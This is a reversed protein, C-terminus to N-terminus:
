SAKRFLNENQLSEMPKLINKLQQVHVDKEFFNFPSKYLVAMLTLGKPCATKAAKQRDKEALVQLITEPPLPKKANGIVMLQGVLNRVMKYLFRDAAIDFIIFDGDRYVDAHQIDCIDNTIKTASDKFSKFDHVGMLLKAAQAMRNADLPKAYHLSSRREAWVSRTAANHIVYRYWKYQADRRSNFQRGADIYADRVSITEPLVANLAKTLNPINSLANEAIDFHGVQGYANVNADTRGAFSVASAKLHLRSLAGQMESQVTSKNPQFQSGYFFQGCYEVLLAVRISLTKEEPQSAQTQVTTDTM